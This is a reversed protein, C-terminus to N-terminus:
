QYFFSYDRGCRPGVSNMICSFQTVKRCCQQIIISTRHAQIHSALVVGLMKLDEEKKLADPFINSSPGRTVNM